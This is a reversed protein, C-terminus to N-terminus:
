AACHDKKGGARGIIHITMNEIHIATQGGANSGRAEKSRATMFRVMWRALGIIKKFEDIIKLLNIKAGM